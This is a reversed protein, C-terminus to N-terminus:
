KSILSERQSRISAIEQISPAIQSIIEEQILRAVVVNSLLM